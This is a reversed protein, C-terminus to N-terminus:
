IRLYDLLGGGDGVIIAGDTALEPVSYFGGEPIIKAGYAVAKGGEIHAAIAPHAKFRRFLHHIDAESRKYDLAYAYGVMVQTSSVHYVFGGGYTTQDSPYGFTHAIEGARSEDEPVEIVEKIGLAFTQGRKSALGKRSVLQETLRGFAGEGLVVVKAHIEEGATFNSKRDGNHDVGKDGTRVGIIRGTEDEILEVAAFGPFIEAGEQESLAAFYRTIKTMSGLPFGHAKMLGPVWPIGASRKENLLFRFSEKTVHADIPLQAKEEDTLLGDFGRPDIVAGSLVHNGISRSKDLITIRPLEQEADRAKLTRLTTLATALSAIGGGVCLIDTQIPQTAPESM